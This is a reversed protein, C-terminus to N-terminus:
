RGYRRKIYLRFPFFCACLLEKKDEDSFVWLINSSAPM